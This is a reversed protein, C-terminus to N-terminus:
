LGSLYPNRPASIRQLVKARLVYSPKGDVETTEVTGVVKWWQDKEPRGHDRADVLIGVPQADAVCCTLVFRFLLFHGDPEGVGRAVQGFTTVERGELAKARRAIELVTMMSRDRVQPGLEDEISGLAGLETLSGVGGVMRKALADTTLTEGSGTAVYLLPLALVGTRVWAVDSRVAHGHPLVLLAALFGAALLAAMALLPWLSPNLFAEFRGSLLLWLM